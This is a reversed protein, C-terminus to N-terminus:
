RSTGPRTSSALADRDPTDTIRITGRFTFYGEGIELIAGDLFLRGPGNAEAQAGRLQWAGRAALGGRHRAHGLRDM